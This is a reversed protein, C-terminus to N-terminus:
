QNTADPMARLANKIALAINHRSFPKQIFGSAGNQLLRDIGAFGSSSYGSCLLIKVDPRITKLVPFVENGGIGPMIMDLIVLDIDEKKRRFVEIGAAGDEAIVVKYGLPTLIDRCMERIYAEDDIVLVTETGGIDRIEDSSEDEAEPAVPLYIAFRTGNGPESYLNIYGGHNNVISHVMYLGLGTGKGMEKTTFFPDFIKSQTGKDMGIGTDSVSLKVFGAMDGGRDEKTGNGMGQVDTEITLRGGDPMADRANVALNLIVQQMQSPDAKIRPLDKKLNTIIEMYKPLSRQLLEMSTRVCDNLDLLKAELKEKRALNLIRKTLEAGKEAADHIIAAYQHLPDGDKVKDLMIESYGIIATLLNNFDHAIGGALTGVAELKQSRLLREELRKEETIDIIYGDYGKIGGSEDADAYLSLFVTLENGYKGIVGEERHLATESSTRQLCDSARKGGSLVECLSNVEGFMDEFRSNKEIIMGDRDLRFIAHEVREFLSKIRKESETILKEKERVALCMQYFEGSLERIEDAPQGPGVADDPLAGNKFNSVSRYLRMVPNIVLRRILINISIIALLTIVASVTVNTVVIRRIEEQIAASSLVLRVFGVTIPASEESAKFFIPSYFDYGDHIKISIPSAQERFHAVAYPEPVEKLREIPYSDVAEWIDSFVQALTVDPARVIASAKKILNLDENILGEEAAKSLSYSLATGRAILGREKSRSYASTFLWTSVISIAVIVLTVFLSAKTQLSTRM